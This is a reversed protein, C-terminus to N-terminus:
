RKGMAQWILLTAGHSTAPGERQDFQQNHNSKEGNQEAQQQRRHLLRPLGGTAEVALVIELLDTEGQM